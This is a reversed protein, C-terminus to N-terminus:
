EKNLKKEFRIQGDELFGSDVWGLHRYFGVARLKEDSGTSLWIDFKGHAALGKEAADLVLRGAGMGEHSPRVFTAFVYAESIQAMSFAIPFSDVEAITTTYDGGRIMDGVTEPTIGLEALEDRSQHNEVVSCRIEFLTEADDPTASRLNM